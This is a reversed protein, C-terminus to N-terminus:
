KIQNEFQHGRQLLKTFYYSFRGTAFLFVADCIGFQNPVSRSSQRAATAGYHVLARVSYVRRVM